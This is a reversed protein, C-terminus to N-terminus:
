GQGNGVAEGIVELVNDLRVTKQWGDRMSRVAVSGSSLEEEGLIVVFRANMRDAQKMQAKMSRRLPDFDCIMGSRRFSRALELLRGDLDFDDDKGDKAKPAVIFVDIEGGAKIPKEGKENALLMRELGMGFGVGPVPPGGLQEILGDYRGGGCVTNGAGLPPWKLEFVTRTYYDIGRVLTRDVSYRIGVSSLIERLRDWHERCEDCLHDLSSPASAVLEKCHENKCDLSKPNHVLRSRCDRM